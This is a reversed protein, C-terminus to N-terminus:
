PKQENLRSEARTAQRDAQRSQRTMQSQAARRARRSSLGSKDQIAQQYGNATKDTAQFRSVSCEASCVCGWHHQGTDLAQQGPIAPLADLLSTQGSITIGPLLNLNQEMLGGGAARNQRNQAQIVSLGCVPCAAMRRIGSRAIHNRSVQKHEALADLELKQKYLMRVAQQVFRDDPSDARVPELNLGPHVPCGAQRTIGARIIASQSVQHHDALLELWQKDTSTIRVPVPASYAGQEPEALAQHDTM